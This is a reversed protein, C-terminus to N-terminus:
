RWDALKYVLKHQGTLTLYEGQNVVKVGNSLTQLVATEVQQANDMCAMMTTALNPALLTQDDLKAEGFFRNCGALGNIRFGEGIELDSKVKEDIAVGDISVLNWHHHQLDTETVKPSSACAALALPLALTLLTRHTM